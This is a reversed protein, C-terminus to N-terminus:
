QSRERKRQWCLCHAASDVHSASSKLTLGHITARLRQASQRVDLAFQLSRQYDANAGPYAARLADAIAIYDKRTM